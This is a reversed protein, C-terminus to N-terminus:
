REMLHLDYLRIVESFYISDPEPIPEEDELNAEIWCCKADEIMQVIEEVTGGHSICGDLEAINAEYIGGQTLKLIITYPLSLYYELDKNKM